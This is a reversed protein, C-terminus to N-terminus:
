ALSSGVVIGVYDNQRGDVTIEINRFSIRAYYESYAMIHKLMNVVSVLRLVLRGLMKVVSVLRVM